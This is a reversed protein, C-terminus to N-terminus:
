CSRGCVGNEACPTGALTMHPKGSQGPPLFKAKTKLAARWAIGAASADSIDRVLAFTQRM